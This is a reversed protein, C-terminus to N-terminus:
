RPDKSGSWPLHFSAVVKGVIESSPVVAHVLESSPPRRNDGLLAFKGAGLKGPGISLNGATAANTVPLAEGNIHLVGSKLEIMEGPLGVVRKIILEQNYRAVVIDGRAVAGNRYCHKNVLLLDGTAYTPLMSPGVVFILQFQRRWLWGALLCTLLSAGWVNTRTRLASPTLRGTQM